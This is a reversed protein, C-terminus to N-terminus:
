ITTRATIKSIINQNLLEDIQRKCDGISSGSGKYVEGDDICFTFRLNFPAYGTLDESILYNRYKMINQKIQVDELIVGVGLEM